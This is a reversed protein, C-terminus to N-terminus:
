YMNELKQLNRIQFRELFRMDNSSTPEAALNRGFDRRAMNHKQIPDTERADVSTNQDFTEESLLEGNLGFYRWTGSKTGDSYSGSSAVVASKPYYTLWVGTRVGKTYRGKELLNGELDYVLRKGTGKVLKGADLLRGDATKFNSIEILRDQSYSEEQYSMGQSDVIQWMGEKNGEKYEGLRYFGQVERVQEKWIGVRIGALYEGKSILTGLNDFNEWNGTLEGKAFSSIIEPQGDEYFQEYTGNEQDNSFEVSKQLQGNPFFTQYTGELKGEEFPIIEALSGNPFFKKVLGQLLNKSYYYESKKSGNRYYSYWDGEKLDDIYKGSLLVEGSESFEFYEGTLRGKSFNVLKKIQGNQYYEEMLGDPMNDKFTIQFIPMSLDFLEEVTEEVVAEVSTKPDNLEDVRKYIKWIGSKEGEKFPGVGVLNTNGFYFYDKSDNEPMSQNLILGLLTILLTKM